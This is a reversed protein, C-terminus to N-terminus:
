KINALSDMMFKQRAVQVTFDPCRNPTLNPRSNLCALPLLSFGVHSGACGTYVAFKAKSRPLNNIEIQRNYPLGNCNFFRMDLAPREPKGEPDVQEWSRCDVYSVVRRQHIFLLRVSQNPIAPGSWPFGIAGSILEDTDFGSNDRIAYLQDWAFTTLTDLRLVTYGDTVDLAPRLQCELKTLLTSNESTCGALAVLCGLFLSRSKM